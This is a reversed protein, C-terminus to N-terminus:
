SKCDRIMLTGTSASLYRQITLPVPSVANLTSSCRDAASFNAEEGLFFRVWKSKLKRQGELLVPGLGLLSMWADRDYTNCNKKTFQLDELKTLGQFLTNPRLVPCRGPEISLHTLSVCAEMARDFTGLAGNNSGTARQSDGWPDNSNRQNWGNQYGSRPDHDLLDCGILTLHTLTAGHEAMVQCVDALMLSGVSRLNLHTLKGLSGELM